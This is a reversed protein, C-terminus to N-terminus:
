NPVENRQHLHPLMFENWLSVLKCIFFHRQHRSILLPIFFSFEQRQHPQRSAVVVETRTAKQVWCTSTNKKEEMQRERIIWFSGNRAIHAHHLNIKVWPSAACFSAGATRKQLVFSKAWYCNRAKLLFCLLFIHARRCIENEETLLLEGTFHEFCAPKWAWWCWNDCTRSISHSILMAYHSLFFFKTLGGKIQTWSFFFTWVFRVIKHLILTSFIDSKILTFEKAFLSLTKSLQMTMEANYAEQKGKCFLTFIHNSPLYKYDFSINM